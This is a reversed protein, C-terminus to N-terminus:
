LKGKLPPQPLSAETIEPLNYLAFGPHWPMLESDPITLPPELKLLFQRHHERVVSVLGDRFIKRRKILGSPQLAGSPDDTLCEVTLQYGDHYSGPM